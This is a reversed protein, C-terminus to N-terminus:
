TSAPHDIRIAGIWLANASSSRLVLPYRIADIRLGLAAFEDLGLCVTRWAGPSSEGARETLSFGACHGDADLMEIRVDGELGADTRLDFCLAADRYAELNLPRRAGLLFRAPSDGDWTVVWADEQIHRDRADARIAGVRGTPKSGSSPLVARREDGSELELRWPARFGRVFIHLPEFAQQAAGAHEPLRDPLRCADGPKLGFGAPLLPARPKGNEDTQAHAAPWSFPLCGGFGVQGTRDPAAFLPAAVSEGASGPLWAVVFADSTNLEPNVYLPRGTLLVSVVPVNQAKLSRLLELTPRVDPLLRKAQWLKPEAEFELTSRDGHWEAYPEEGFVVIAVDPREDFKGDAAFTLRGGGAEVRARIGDLVTTARPFDDASVGRGQWTISWGGMQKELDAAGNGAVLVHGGPDLPLLNTANKLLVLSERVAQGALEHHEAGGFRKAAGAAAAVDRAEDFLGARLKVRLIRRVADDLRERPIVNSEADAVTQELLGRWDEPAMLVDVGANIVPACSTKTCGPVMAYGNWDSIVFGDFGLRRKLVTTLLYESGHVPQGNWSSFSAMVIQTGAELASFYATGHVDHLTQEDLVTNGRDIGHLTGGDGIYHKLTALVTRDDLVNGDSSRQLGDVLACALAAVLAPDEAYSEYTRGWRYDSAVSVSPAFTCHLGTAILEMATVRGIRRVLDPNRAAGLGINHPFITAGRVNNHGHVADTAWLIPIPTRGGDNRLSARRYAESLRLWDRQHADRRGDPYSGGGSLISGLGYAAVDDPTLYQIEGQILQGVKERLSMQALLEDIRRELKNDIPISSKLRPWLSAADTTVSASM